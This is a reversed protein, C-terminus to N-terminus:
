RDGVGYRGLLLRGCVRGDLRRLSIPTPHQEFRGHEGARAWGSALRGNTLYLRQSSQRGTGARASDAQGM